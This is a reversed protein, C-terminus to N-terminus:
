KKATAKNRIYEDMARAAKKAAGMATIVTAAGTVADGGAYVGPISTAMTEEDVIIGGWKTTQLNTECERVVPNPSQGVAFVATDVEITFNSGEIPVPRRRGSEDPEGLEMQICEMGKLFGDEDGIFRVPNALLRFIVGEELANEIEEERAPM